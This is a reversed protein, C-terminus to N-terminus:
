KIEIIRTLRQAEEKKQLTVHLVGDTYAASIKNVDITEDITFSRSFSQLKYETRLWGENKNEQQAEEKQEYSITLVNGNVNMKLDEKKLGPAIVDLEYSTDTQRINVPVHVSRTVSNFGWATDDFFRSLNDQFVKDVWGNFGTAPTSGNSTKKTLTNM